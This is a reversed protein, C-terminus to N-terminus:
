FKRTSENFVGIVGLRDDHLNWRTFHDKRRSRVAFSRAWRPVNSAPKKWHEWCRQCWVIHGLSRSSDGYFNFEVYLAVVDDPPLFDLKCGICCINSAYDRQDRAALRLAQVLSLHRQNKSVHPKKRM